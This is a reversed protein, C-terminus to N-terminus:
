LLMEKVEMGVKKFLGNTSYPAKMEAYMDKIWKILDEQTASDLAYLRKCRELIKKNENTIALMYNIEMDVLKEMPICGTELICLWTIYRSEEFFKIDTNLEPPPSILQVCRHNLKYMIESYPMRCLPKIDSWLYQEPPKSKHPELQYISNVHVDNTYGYVYKKDASIIGVPLPGSYNSIDFNYRDEVRKFITIHDTCNMQTTLCQRYSDKSALCKYRSLDM